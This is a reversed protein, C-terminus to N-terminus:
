AALGRIRQDFHALLEIAQAKCQDKLAYRTVVCFGGWRTPVQETTKSFSLNHQHILASVTTRLVHDGLQQQAEFMNLSGQYIFHALVRAKKSRKTIMSMNM